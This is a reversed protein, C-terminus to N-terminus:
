KVQSVLLAVLLGMGGVKVLSYDLNMPHDFNFSYYIM